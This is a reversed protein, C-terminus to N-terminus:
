HIRFIFITLAVETNLDGGAKPHIGLKKAWHVLWETVQDRDEERTENRMGRM